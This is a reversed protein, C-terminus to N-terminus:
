PTTATSTASDGSSPPTWETDARRRREAHDLDHGQRPGPAGPGGRHVADALMAHWGAFFEQNFRIYDMWLPCPRARASPTPCRSRTWRRTAAHRVPANLRALDGHRQRLWAQWETRASDCPEEQNVPENSLCISHLAPHDKIPGSPRRMFQRLLEQGEPAHLCYQLFGERHKRLHPWKDLAWDPLYHPSILLCVAVGPSGRRPRPDGRLEARAGRRDRGREPLRRSPGLEIQIINAGYAPWKEIDAVVRGFHGYGTFFVPRKAEPGDPWRVTALFSSGRSRRGSSATWRPVPPFDHGAASAPDLESRLALAMAEM